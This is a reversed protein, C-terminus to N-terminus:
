LFNRLSQQWIANKTALELKQIYWWFFLMFGVGIMSGFYVDIFFHQALYPRTLSALVALCLLPIGTKQNKALLSFLCCVMFATTAHGSPFSFHRHVEVGEVLHLASANPLYAIPRNLDAFVLRKLLQTCGSSVLFGLLAVFAYEYRWWLLALVVISVFFGDGLHTLYKAIIDLFPTHLADFWWIDDGKDITALVFAGLLLYLLYAFIFYLNTHLQKM